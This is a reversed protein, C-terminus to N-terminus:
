KTGVCSARFFILKFKILNRFPIIVQATGVLPKSFVILIQNVAECFLQSIDGFLKCFGNCRYSIHNGKYLFLDSERDLVLGKGSKYKFNFCADM